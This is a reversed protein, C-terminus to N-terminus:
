IWISETYTKIADWNQKAFVEVFFAPLVNPIAGVFHLHSLEV